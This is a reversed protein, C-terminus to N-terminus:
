RGSTKRSRRWNPSVSDVETGTALGAGVVAERINEVTVQAVRKGEGNRFIPAVLEVQGDVM